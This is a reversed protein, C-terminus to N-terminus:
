VKDFTFANLLVDVELTSENKQIIRTPRNHNSLNRMTKRENINNKKWITCTTDRMRM